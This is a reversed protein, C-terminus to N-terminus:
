LGLIMIFFISEVTFHLARHYIHSKNVGSIEHYIDVLMHILAGLFGIELSLFVVSLVIFHFISELFEHILWLGINSSVTKQILGALLVYFDFFVNWMVRTHVEDSIALVVAIYFWMMEM